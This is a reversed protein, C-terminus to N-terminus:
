KGGCCGCSCHSGKTGGGLAQLYMRLLGTLEHKSCIEPVLGQRSVLFARYGDKRFTNAVVLDCDSKYLLKRGEEILATPSAAPEYKFGILVAGPADKKILDILKPTPALRVTFGKASSIKGKATKVPQFDSVAASHVVADYSNGKLEVSLLKKLEEFFRFPLVRVHRNKVVTACPGLCLTVKAGAKQLVGALMVGTEGSAANSIVRVNDLAVWTPGATILIKKGKLAM